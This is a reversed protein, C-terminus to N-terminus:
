RVGARVEFNLRLGSADGGRAPQRYTLRTEIKLFNAGFSCGTTVAARM